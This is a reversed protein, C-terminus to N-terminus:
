AIRYLLPVVNGRGGITFRRSRCAFDLTHTLPVYRGTLWLEVHKKSEILSAHKDLELLNAVLKCLLKIPMDASIIMFPRALRPLKAALPCEPDPFFSSKVCTASKLQQVASDVAVNQYIFPGTQDSPDTSMHNTSEDTYRGLYSWFAARMRLDNLRYSPFLKDVLNQLRQDIVLGDLLNGEVVTHCKPCTNKVSILFKLICTRCFTHLCEKITTATRFFGNCLRCVLCDALVRIKFSVDLGEPSMFTTVDRERDYEIRCSNDEQVDIPSIHPGVSRMM